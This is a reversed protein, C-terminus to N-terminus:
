APYGVPPPCVAIEHRDNLTESQQISLISVHMLQVPACSWSAPQLVEHRAKVETSWQPRM